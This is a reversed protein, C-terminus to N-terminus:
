SNLFDAIAGAIHSDALNAITISDSDILYSIESRSLVMVPSTYYPRALALFTQARRAARKQEVRAAAAQQERKPVSASFPTSPQEEFGYWSM